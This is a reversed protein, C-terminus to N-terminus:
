RRGIAAGNAFLNGSDDYRVKHNDKNQTVIQNRVGSDTTVTHTTTGNGNDSRTHKAKGM